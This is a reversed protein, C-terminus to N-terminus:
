QHLVLHQTVIFLWKSHKSARRLHPTPQMWKCSAEHWTFAARYNAEDGLLNPQIWWGHNECALIEGTSELQDTYNSVNYVRHICLILKTSTRSVVCITSDRGPRKTPPWIPHLWSCTLKMLGVVTFNSYTTTMIVQLLFAPMPLFVVQPSFWIVYCWNCIIGCIRKNKTYYQQRIHWDHYRYDFKFSFIHRKDRCSIKFNVEVSVPDFDPRPIM